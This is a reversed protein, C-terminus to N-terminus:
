KGICFQSFVEDLVERSGDRGSIGDLNTLAERLDVLVLEESLGQRVSGKARDISCVAEDLCKKHRLSLITSRDKPMIMGRKLDRVIAKKLREIGDGQLASIRWCKKKGFQLKSIESARLKQPLDQKNIVTLTTKANVAAAVLRDQKNLKRSGDLVMLATDATELAQRTREFSLMEVQEQQGPAWGGTDVLVVPIGDVEIMEEITDRTTGPINTVIARDRATLANLLSSKGANPRGVIAVRLGDRILKGMEWTKALAALEKRLCNLRNRMSARSSVSLEEDPFDIAAEMQAIVNVLSQRLRAMKKSLIGSLQGIGTQLAFDSRARIIEIVAEAQALDIRGNLFARRTFEGPEALRAGHGTVLKLTRRLPLMGGHCNIEVIDERTYTGPARMITLLAEDIRTDSAPDVVWGYRITFSPIKKFSTRRHLHFVKAAISIANKGSLRVIGIGSQGPPTSVAAITDDSGPRRM